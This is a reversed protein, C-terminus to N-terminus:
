PFFSAQARLNAMSYEAVDSDRHHGSTGVQNFIALTDALM